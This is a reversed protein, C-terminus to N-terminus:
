ADTNFLSFYLPLVIRFPHTLSGQGTKFAGWLMLCKGHAADTQDTSQAVFFSMVGNINIYAAAGSVEEAKAQIDKKIAIWSPDLLISRENALYELAPLTLQGFVSADIDDSGQGYQCGGHDLSWALVGHARATSGLPHSRRYQWHSKRLCWVAPGKSWVGSTRGAGKDECLRGFAPQRM